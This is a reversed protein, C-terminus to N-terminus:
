NFQISIFQIQMMNAFPIATFLLLVVKFMLVSKSKGTCHLGNHYFKINNNIVTTISIRQSYRYCLNKKINTLKKPPRPASLLSPNQTWHGNNQKFSNTEILILQETQSDM